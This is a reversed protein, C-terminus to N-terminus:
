KAAGGIGAGSSATPSNINETTNPVFTPGTPGDGKTDPTATASAVPSPTPSPSPFYQLCDPHTEPTPCDQESWAQVTQSTLFYAAILPAVILPVFFLKKM